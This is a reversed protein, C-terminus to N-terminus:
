GLKATITCVARLHETIDLQLSRVLSTIETRSLIDTCPIRDSQLTIIFQLLWLLLDLSIASYYTNQHESLQALVHSKLVKRM